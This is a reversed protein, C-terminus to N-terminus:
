ILEGILDQQKVKECSQPTVKRVKFTPQAKNKLVFTNKVQSDDVWRLSLILSEEPVLSCSM